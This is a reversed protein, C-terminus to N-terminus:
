PCALERAEPAIQFFLRLKELARKEIQRVRERSVGFRQALAELTVPAETLFRERVVAQERPNLRDIGRRILSATLAAQQADLLEHEQNPRQDAILDLLEVSDELVPQNLSTDAVGMRSDVELITEADTGFKRALEEAEERNLPALSGKTQRLKFFLQRRLRTTAIRVMRWSRLIFDHIAARIWWIAYTALRVGRDPDFKKVAQMLGATGEQVLDALPLQYNRYEQATKVVLRLYAHVLRHAADLDNQKRYRVALRREEEESLLPAQQAQRLLRQFGSGGERIALDHSRHVAVPFTTM